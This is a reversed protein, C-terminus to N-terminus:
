RPGPPWRPWRRSCIPRSIPGSGGPWGSCCATFLPLAGAYLSIRALYTLIGRRLLRIDGGLTQGHRRGREQADGWIELTRLM